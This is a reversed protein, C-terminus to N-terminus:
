HHILEDSLLHAKLALSRARVLDGQQTAQRSQEMFFGIQRVTDQQDSSLKRNSISKLNVDTLQQLKAITQRQDVEDSGSFGPALRGGTADTSGNRVVVRRHSPKKKATRKSSKKNKTITQSKPPTAQPPAQPETSSPQAPEAPPVPIQQQTSSAEPPAETQPGSEQAPLSSPVLLGSVLGLVTVFRWWRM